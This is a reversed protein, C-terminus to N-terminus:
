KIRAIFISQDDSLRGMINGLLYAILQPSSNFLGEFNRLDLNRRIGDSATILIYKKGFKSQTPSTTHHERGLVGPTFAIPYIQKQDYIHAHMDGVGLLKANGSDIEGFIAVAGRTNVLQKDIATLLSNMDTEHAIHAAINDTAAQAEAGHGLGDLHVWRLTKDIKHFYIRDGNYRNDSLSKSFMGVQFNGLEKAMSESVHNADSMEGATFRALIATGSWKKTQEPTGQQTYAYYEDSSRRIAGLGQGLTNSTSYGDKEAQHINPIGPGYDLAFIDFMAGPQQWLQILGRGEAHKTQNSLIESAVLLMKEQKLPHIHLRQSIALLKSRLLIMASKNQAPSSYLLKCDTASDFIKSM